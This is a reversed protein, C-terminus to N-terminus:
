SRHSFGQLRADDHLPLLPLDMSHPQLPIFQDSSLRSATAAHSFAMRRRGFSEVRTTTFVTVICGAVGLICSCTFLLATM